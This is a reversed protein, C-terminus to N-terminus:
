RRSSWRAAPLSRAQENSHVSIRGSGVMSSPVRKLGLPAALAEAARLLSADSAAGITLSLGDDEPRLFMACADSSQACSRISDSSSEVSFGAQTAWATADALSIEEREEAYTAGHPLAHLRFIYFAVQFLMKEFSDSVRALLDEEADYVPPDAQDCPHLVIFTGPQPHIGVLCSDKPFLEYPNQNSHMCHILSRIDTDGGSVFNLGGNDAGMTAFYERLLAPIPAGFIQEYEAIEAPTAGRLRTPYSPDSRSVYEILRNMM